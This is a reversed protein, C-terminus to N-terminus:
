LSAGRDLGRARVVAMEQARSRQLDTIVDTLPDHGRRGRGEAAYLTNTRRGRTLATYGAERYLHEDALVLAHDVTLGQAKHITLAYGLDVHDAVYAPDLSVRRDGVDLTIGGSGTTATITGTTGNLVGLDRDNRLCVVRDGVFFRRDGVSIADSGLEGREVRVAQALENLRGTAARRSALMVAEGGLRAWDRVMAARPDRALVVRGHKRLRRLATSVRGGRLGSTVAREVRDRQRRNEVLHSAGLADALAAFAGGAELEPLQRPDGVLVLKTGSRASSEQLRHLARTGVMAAEDVILVGRRPLENGKDVYQLMAAITSVPIGAEECLQQAARAALACGIVEHGSARWAACAVRLATTKGAGASGIVVELGAGSTTITTVMAQQERSLRVDAGDIAERVCAVPLRATGESRRRLSAALLEREVTLLNPDTYLGDDIMTVASSALFQAARQEIETVTMGQTARSAVARIVDPKTFLSRSATLEAPLGTLDAASRTLDQSRDRAHKLLMAAQMSSFGAGDARADWERRLTPADVAVKVNRTALTAVRAARGGSLGLDALEAEIAQRRRSFTHLVRRPIGVIEGVGNDAATWAIGLRATLGARLEAQYLHGATSALRHLPRGDLASWRGDPGLAINAVLVHTHIQPDGARSTRHRFGAAVFGSGAFQNVGNHGRRVHCAERELWALAADVAAEHAAVVQKAAGRDGFAWLVSVSKPASFTLDYGPLTRNPRALLEGTEPHRASLVARLDDADVVGRLGLQESSARWRGRAEGSGVYYEEVGEAVTALYYDERGASLKGISLVSCIHADLPHKRSPRGFFVCQRDGVSLSKKV